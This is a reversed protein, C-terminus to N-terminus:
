CLYPELGKEFSSILMEQIGILGLISSKPQLVSAFNVLFALRLTQPRNSCWIKTQPFYGVKLASNVQAYTYYLRQKAKIAQICAAKM